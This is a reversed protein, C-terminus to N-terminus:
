KGGRFGSYFYHATVHHSWGPSRRVDAAEVRRPPSDYEWGSFDIIAYVLLVAAASVVYVLNLM